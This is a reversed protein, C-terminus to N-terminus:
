DVDYGQVITNLVIYGPCNDGIPDLILLKRDKSIQLTENVIEDIEVKDKTKKLCEFKGNYDQLLYRCETSGSHLLCVNRVHAISLM